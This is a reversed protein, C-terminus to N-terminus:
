VDVALGPLERLVEILNLENRLGVELIISVDRTLFFSSRDDVVKRCLVIRTFGSLDFVTRLSALMHSPYLSLDVLSDVCEVVVKEECAVVVTELHIVFLNLVLWTLLVGGRRHQSRDIIM